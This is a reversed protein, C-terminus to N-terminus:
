YRDQEDRIGESTLGTGRYRGRMRKKNEVPIIHIIGDKQLVVVRSGAMLQVEARVSAPIVVQYKSSVIATDMINGNFSILM